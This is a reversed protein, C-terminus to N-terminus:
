KNNLVETDKKIEEREYLKFFPYWICFSVIFIGSVLLIAALSGNTTLWTSIPFPCYWFGFQIKPIPAFEIVKTFFWIIAPLVAGQLWFPIMLYPNWAVSGFIVPENINFVSPMLYARGLSKLKVSKSSMMLIILPMTCGIGGIWLYTSYQTTGTVLNSAGLTFNAVIAQTMIPDMVPTMVWASIGMSYIFCYIFMIFCFGLPSEVINRLPMFLSVIMNYLDFQIIDVIIWGFCIVIAAPLMLDFWTRVFDPIVSNAKFFSFKGFLGLVLSSIVGAIIAIFMGGAGFASHSLGITGDILLQPSIIMLYLIVGCLSAVHRLKRLRKKEMVNLPILFAIFLSLMGMTWGYPSWFNPWWAFGFVDGPITLCCFISGLFTIPLTQMIADKISVIWVNHNIKNMKPTFNVEMFKMFKEM